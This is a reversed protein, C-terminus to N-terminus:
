ARVKRVWRILFMPVSVVMFVPLALAIEWLSTQLNQGFSYWPWLGCVAYIMLLSQIWGPQWFVVALLIIGFSVVGQSRRRLSRRRITQESFPNQAELKRFFKDKAPSRGAHLYGLGDYCRPDSFRRGYRRKLIKKVQKVRDENGWYAEERLVEIEGCEVVVFEPVLEDDDSTWEIEWSCELRDGELDPLSKGDQTLRGKLNAIFKRHGKAIYSDSYDSADIDSVYAMPSSCNPCMPWATNRRFFLKLETGLGRWGCEGTDCCIYEKKEFEDSVHFEPFLATVFEPGDM